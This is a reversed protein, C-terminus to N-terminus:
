QFKTTALFLCFERSRKKSIIPNALFELLNKDHFIVELLDIEEKSPALSEKTMKFLAEAYPRALTIAEAM